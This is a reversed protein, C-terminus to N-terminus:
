MKEPAQLGILRLGNQMTIKVCQVVALRAKCLDPDDVLVHCAHYFRNFDRALDVLYRTIMSPELKNMAQEIREGFLQLSKIVAVAEINQLLFTDIQFPETSIEIRKEKKAKRIVSCTRAHTYQVYPGTEGEFNLADEWTFHIDNIRNGKLDNFVIAGVGVQKAVEDKNELDPNRVEIIDRTKDIAKQLVDELKVVNGKRTSLSMGEISVRGFAVHELDKAWEYGMLEVVKFWQKFHLNQAYDTVYIAKHFDYTDKRYIAATVDRTHYLSSGDRKLMLAPPMGFEELKVIWAGEDEVLLQQEKLNQIVPDMKDNYFSEGAYSDFQVGLLRYIKQFEEVSIEVFRKWLKLATEDGQEMKAFWARAQVELTQDKEAEEHFKVYLRLLEDIGNRKIEDSNGWSRYAVILKGFQTGWDGLHNIGVCNYGLFSFIRVLAHGIVTSRLHAVHFPKAINPSSYDIVVTRGKGLDRAGYQGGSKLVDQIIDGALRSKNFTINLYGSVPDMEEIIDDKLQDKLESAIIQPSKKLQKSLRFCPLSLDGMEPNPPVEMLGAIEQAQIGTLLSAIKEALVLKYNVLHLVERGRRIFDFFGVDGRSYSVHAIRERPVVRLTLGM